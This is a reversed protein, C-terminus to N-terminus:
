RSFYYSYCSSSIKLVNFLVKLDEYQWWNEKHLKTVSIDEPEIISDSL